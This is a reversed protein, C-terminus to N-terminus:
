ESISRGTKGNIDELRYTDADIKKIRFATNGIRVMSETTEQGTKLNKLTVEYQDYENRFLYLPKESKEMRIVKYDSKKVEPRNLFFDKFKILFKM